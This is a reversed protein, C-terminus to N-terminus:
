WSQPVVLEGIEMYAADNKSGAAAGAVWQDNQQKSDYSHVEFKWLWPLFVM